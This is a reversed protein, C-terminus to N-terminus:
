KPGYECAQAIRSVSSRSSRTNGARVQLAPDASTPGIMFGDIGLEASKEKIGAEMANFWPIGGIKVVVGVKAADAALAAFSSALM